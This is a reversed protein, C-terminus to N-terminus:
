SSLHKNGCGQDGSFTTVASALPAQLCVQANLCSVAFALTTSYNSSLQQNSATPHDPVFIKVQEFSQLHNAQLFPNQILEHHCVKECSKLPRDYGAKLSHNVPSINMDSM